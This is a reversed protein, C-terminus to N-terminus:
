YMKKIEIGSYFFKLIESYLIGNDGMTNAGNQSLGVGHGYGGGIINYGTIVGDEAVADMVIYSSPLMNFSSNVSGDNKIIESSVPHFLKRIYGETTVKVTANTGYIIVYNLVGGTSRTGLEVKKVDGVSSIPSSVYKGEQNLTLVKDNGSQYLSGIVENVTQTMDDLTMYLSWRYWAYQSDYSSFQNRIFTDFSSEDTLDISVEEGTLIRGKIYGLGTGGWVTADTTSGCSTSFFFANVIEDGYMMIEGYTEDVAATTSAREQSNNYVQFTTSDDVHAGYESLTNNLLQRYAYSRACVAQAKLAETSYTYPMESPVVAYLYQEIPVENVIVLKGDKVTIELTGRYSPTGYGREISNISIRGNVSQPTITLRGEQLYPSDANLELQTGAEAKQTENGYSLEYSTDSSVTVTDHFMEKHGTTKILVRINKANVDRDIVIACIKGEDNVIFKQIDYGVLVDKISKMQMSGYTKYVRVNDDLGYVGEGELEIGGEGSSLVKGSVSRSKVSYDKVKKNKIHIDAAVSSYVAEKDDTEFERLAGDIFAKIKGNEVTIVWANHYTIETSIIEIVCLIENDKILAKVEKDIYYDVSLGTFLYTGKTTVAQWSPITPVNSVTGVICMDTESVVDNKGLLEVLKGYIENWESTIIANSSKNNKVYSWIEKDEIKMNTLLKNLSDYTFPSVADSDTPKIDKELFYTDNYMANMYPVYWGDSTGSFCDEMERCEDTTHYLLSISRAVQGATVVNKDPNEQNKYSSLKYVALILILAMCVMVLIVSKRNHFSKRSFKMCPEGTMTPIELINGKFFYIGSKLPM